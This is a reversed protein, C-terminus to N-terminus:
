GPKWEATRIRLESGHWLSLKEGLWKLIDYPQDGILNHKRDTIVALSWMGDDGAKYLLIGTIDRHRYIRRSQCRLLRSELRIREADLTFTRTSLAMYLVKWLALFWFGWFILVFWVPAEPARTGETVLGLLLWVCAITWGGLWLIGLIIQDMEGTRHHSIRVTGDPRATNTVGQKLEACEQQKRYFHAYRDIGATSHNRAPADSQRHNPM